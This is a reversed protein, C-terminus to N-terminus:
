SIAARGRSNGFCPGLRTPAPRCAAAPVSRVGASSAPACRASASSGVTAAADVARQLSTRNSPPNAQLSSPSEQRQAPGTAAATAACDAPQLSAARDSTTPTPPSPQVSVLPRCQALPQPAGQLISHLRVACQRFGRHENIDAASMNTSGGPLVAVKPLAAAPTKALLETM